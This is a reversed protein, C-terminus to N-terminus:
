PNQQAVFNVGTLDNNIQLVQSAFTYRKAQVSITYPGGPTINDFQYYGFVSTTTTRPNGGSDTITVRSNTIGVGSPTSVRGSVSVGVVAGSPGQVSVTMPSGTKFFGLTANM